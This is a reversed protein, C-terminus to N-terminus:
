KKEKIKLCPRLMYSWSAKFKYGGAEAARLVSNCSEVAQNGQPFDKPLQPHLRWSSQPVCDKARERQERTSSHVPRSQWMGAM